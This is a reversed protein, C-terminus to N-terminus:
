ITEITSSYDELSKQKFAIPKRIKLNQM